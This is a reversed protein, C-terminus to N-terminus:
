HEYDQILNQITNALLPAISFCQIKKSETFREMVPVTNTILVSNFFSEEIKKVAQSNFLGHTVAGVIYEAGHNKCLEAAAVLTNGTSSMDDVILIKKAKLQGILQMKVESDSIRQKEIVVLDAKMQKAIKEAIKSSGVDPAVVVCEKKFIKQAQEVLLTQCHIHDVPVEFFGELQGAHLDVTILRDIGAVELLNAILKATIPVGSKDKRDQRCYGYYPIIATIKRASSRKLADIIILLEMLYFNPDLATSQLVYVEKGRVDELLQIKTEEDPFKGLLIKGLPIDLIDAVEQALKQHSSGSFIIPTCKTM